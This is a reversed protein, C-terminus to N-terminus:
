GLRQGLRLEDDRVALLAEGRVRGDLERLAVVAEDRKARVALGQSRLM